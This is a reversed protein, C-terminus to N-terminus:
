NKYDSPMALRQGPFILYDNGVNNLRSIEVWRRVDHLERESIKTLSDGSRVVVVSTGAVIEPQRVDKSTFYRRVLAGYEPTRKVRDIAENIRELLDDNGKPVGISYKHESEPLSAVKIELQQGAIGERTKEKNIERVEQAAFPYDYIIADTKGVNLANNLWSDEQDSLAAVNAGHVNRKVYADVVNDGQVVGVNKGGLQDLSEIYSSKKAILAYGFDVYGKSWSITSDYAPDIAIGSMILDVSFDGNSEKRNLLCFLDEFKQVERAKVRSKGVLGMQAAILNAMEYDFGQRKWNLERRRREEEGATGGSEAKAWGDKSDLSDNMPPASYQVGMVLYGRHMINALVDKQM